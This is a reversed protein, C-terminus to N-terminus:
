CKRTIIPTPGAPDVALITAPIFPNLVSKIPFYGALDLGQSSPYSLLCYAM